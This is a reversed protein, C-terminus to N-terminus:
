PGRRAAVEGGLAKIRAAAIRAANTDPEDRIIERYFVLAGRPKDLKELSEALKLRSAAIREQMAPAAAGMRGREARAVAEARPSASGRPAPPPNAAPGLLSGRRESPEKADAIVAPGAPAPAALSTLFREILSRRQHPLHLFRAASD